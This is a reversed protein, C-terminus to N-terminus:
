ETAKADSTAKVSKVKLRGNYKLTVADGKQMPYLSSAKDATVSKDGSTITWNKADVNGDDFTVTYFPLAQIKDAYTSWKTKYTDVSASPVYIKLGAPTNQFANSGYTTLSPAFIYVSALM